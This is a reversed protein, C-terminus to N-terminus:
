WIGSAPVVFAERRVVLPMGNTFTSESSGPSIMVAATATGLKSNDSFMVRAVRLPRMFRM